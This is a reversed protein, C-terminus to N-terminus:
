ISGGQKQLEDRFDKDRAALTTKYGQPDVWVEYGPTSKQRELKELMDFYSGHAGLFIDCPLSKLVEFTHKYDEAIGAYSDPQTSREVLRYGPNVYWGGVIVVNLTRGGEKVKMTWTTCGRTHGPTKHAILVADGLRVSDGDHLVREVTAPPYTTSSYMFDAKGGSEVVAVDGDMVMYRAATDKVIQASGAAHDYHAHSILLVKTDAYKFGLQEISARILPASNATDSNILINGKSTVILYSALDKSGVYYLNGAIRFPAIPTVWEPPDASPAAPAAAAFNWGLLTLALWTMLKAM